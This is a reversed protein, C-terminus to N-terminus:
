EDKLAEEMENLLSEKEQNKLRHYDNEPLLVDFGCLSRFPCFSCARQGSPNLYPNLGIEGSVITDAAQKMKLRNYAQLTGIEKETYFNKNQAVPKLVGKANRTIPYLQSSEKEKLTTDLAELLEGDKAYFGKLKYKELPRQKLWEEPSEIPDHIRLYYAGAPHVDKTGILKDADRLAVDLYTILQMALGYYAELLNFQKDGSKYDVVALWTEDAKQLADVRDIKGRVHLKGGNKLPLELGPIGQKGAIQGFLVETQVPRMKTRKGQEHLTWTMKKITKELRYRLYEMRASSQLVQYQPEGFLEQMLRDIVQRRTDEDLDAVDYNLQAVAKLFRDLSDHFLSGTMLTDMGYLEREKLGLGYAAFYRYECQYFSELRSVSAYLETGYVEKALSPALPVPQNLHSRGSFARQALSAVPSKKLVEEVWQWTAPVLRKDQDCQRYLNNLQGIASRYSALHQGPDSDPTLLGREELPLKLWTQFRRLYPSIQINQQTDYNAAYTLYLQDTASLFLKYAILPSRANQEGAGEKIFKDEPLVQNLRSREEDTLLSPNAPTQPFNSENLGLAFTVRCQRPRTLTLQNIQIQDITAPIKGYATNELGSSFVERFLELDFTDEGYIEVYEDMLTMLAGWTQEHNRAVELQGAAVAQDRWYLLNTEVGADILFQYLLVCAARGTTASQLQEIFNGVQDRFAQRLRNSCQTLQGSDLTVTNEYDFTIVPWDEKALWYYGQFNNKLALNETLDVDKRFIALAQQWNQNSGAQYSQPLFLESKLLQLIDELRFHYRPLDLLTRLFAVLPHQDMTAKQDIYFPLDAEAFLHPILEGYTALDNTVLQIDKLRLTHDQSLLRKIEATIQRVEEEPTVAKWLHVQNNLSFAAQYQGQNQTLRWFSELEVLNPYEECDRAGSLVAVKQDAARAAQTLQYFIKGTAAFLDLSSPPQSAYQKDLLLTMTVTAKSLLVQLLQIEQAYLEEFGYAIFLTESLDPPTMLEQDLEGQLYAVLVALPDEVQLKRQNLATQYASLIQAVEALKAQQDQWKAAEPGTTDEDAGVSSLLDAPTLKGATLEQHFDLLQRVFGAKKVESKFVVLEEALEGLVQRLIMMSGTETITAETLQGTQQLFYWALRYFSFVQIDITSFNQSQQRQKLGQLLEQEQVFKNYNPVLFFVKGQPHAQKFAIAEDVAASQLDCNGHGLLFRLGM